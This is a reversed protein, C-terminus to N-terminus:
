VLIELYPRLFPYVRDAKAAEVLEDITGYEGDVYDRLAAMAVDLGLHRRYRFCDAVTKAPSTIKVSVGEIEHVDVGHTRAPGSARVTEIRLNTSAPRRAHRDIMIWVAHPLETTLGHFQLASLLCVAAKPFRLSIQALSHFETSCSEVLRYVGREVRELVGQDCLRKLYTRPIQAEALDRARLPGRQALRMLADMKTPTAM